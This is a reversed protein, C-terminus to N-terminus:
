QMQALVKRQSAALPHNCFHQSAAICWGRLASGARSGLRSCGTLVEACRYQLLKFSLPRGDNTPRSDAFVFLRRSVDGSGSHLDLVTYGAFARMRGM